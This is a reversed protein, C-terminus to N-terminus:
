TPSPTRTMPMSWCAAIRFGNAFARTVEIDRALGAAGADMQVRARDEAQFSSLGAEYDQQCADLVARVGRPKDPPIVDELYIAGSYLAVERPGRGGLLEYVPKHLISGVLDHFVRDMEQPVLDTTGSALDFLEDLRARGVESCRGTQRVVHGV